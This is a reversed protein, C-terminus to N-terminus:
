RNDERAMINKEDLLTLKKGGREFIHSESYQQWIVHEGVHVYTVEDGVAIVDGEQHQGVKDESQILTTKKIEVLIFERLPIVM